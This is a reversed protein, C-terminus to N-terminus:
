KGTNPMKDCNRNAVIENLLCGIFTLGERADTKKIREDFVTKQILKPLLNM